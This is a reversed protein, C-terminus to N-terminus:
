NWVNPIIAVVRHTRTDIVLLDDGAFYRHYYAPVPPLRHVLVTPVPVLRRQLGPPLAGNEHLQRRLGPPLAQRKALGPPLSGERAYEHIVRVHADRDIIIVAHQEDHKAHGRGRGQALVTSFSTLSLVATVVVLHNSFTM